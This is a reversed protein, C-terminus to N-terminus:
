RANHGGGGEEQWTTVRVIAKRKGKKIVRKDRTIRGKRRATIDSTGEQQTTRM